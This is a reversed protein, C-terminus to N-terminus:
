CTGGGFKRIEGERLVEVRLDGPRTPSRLEEVIQVEGEGVCGCEARGVHQGKGTPGLQRHGDLCCGAERHETEDDCSCDVDQFSSVSWLSWATGSLFPRPTIPALSCSPEAM